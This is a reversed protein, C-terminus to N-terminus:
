GVRKHNFRVDYRARREPDGLTSYAENVRAVILELKRQFPGLRKRAFRQPAFLRALEDFNARLVAPNADHAAGLLEYHDLSALSAYMADIEHRQAPSLDGDDRPGEPAPTAKPATGAARISSPPPASSWREGVGPVISYTTSQLPPRSRVGPPPPPDYFDSRLPRRMDSPSDPGTEPPTANEQSSVSPRPRPPLLM